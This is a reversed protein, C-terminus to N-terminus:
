FKNSDDGVQPKRQSSFGQAEIKIPTGGTSPGVNPQHFIPLPNLYYEFSAQPDKLHIVREKSFQQGNYTM